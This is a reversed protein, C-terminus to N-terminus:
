KRIGLKNILVEYAEKKKTRMYNLLKRRKSVIGLLGRKSHEDKPHDKMHASLSEIRNSLIAIQVEPSGTDKTHRGHSSIIKKKQDRKM